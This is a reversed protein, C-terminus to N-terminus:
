SLTLELEALMAKHCKTLKDSADKGDGERKIRKLAALYTQVVSNMHVPLRDALLDVCNGGSPYQEPNQRHLHECVSEVLQQLSELALEANHEKINKLTATITVTNGM